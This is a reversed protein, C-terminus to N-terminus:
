GLERNLRRIPHFKNVNAIHTCNWTLLVDVNHFSALALHHADGFSGQQMILRDIYTEAIQNVRANVQLMELDKVLDIRDQTKESTRASLEDLM